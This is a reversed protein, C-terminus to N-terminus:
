LQASSSSAASQDKYPSRFRSFWDQLEQQRDSGLLPWISLILEQYFALACIDVLEYALTTTKSFFLQEDLRRALLTQMQQVLLAKPPDGQQRWTKPFNRELQSWYGHNYWSNWRRLAADVPGAAFAASANYWAGRLMARSEFGNNWTAAASNAYCKDAFGASGIRCTTTSSTSGPSSHDLPPHLNPRHALDMTAVTWNATWLLNSRARTPTPQATPLNLIALILLAQPCRLTRMPILARLRDM